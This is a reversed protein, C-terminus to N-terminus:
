GDSRGLLHELSERLRTAKYARMHSDQAPGMARYRSETEELLFDVANRLLALKETMEDTNGENAM